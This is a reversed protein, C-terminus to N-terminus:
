EHWAGGTVAGLPPVANSSCSLRRLAGMCERAVQAVTVELVSAPCGGEAEPRCVRAIRANRPGWRVWDTPGFIVVAPTAVANAIHAPGSDNGVFLDAQEIFAALQGVTTRGALDLAASGLARALLRTGEQEKGKGGLLIFGCSRSRCLDLALSIFRALPWNKRDRNSGVHIAVLPRSLAARTVAGIADSRDADALSITAPWTSYDAPEASWCNALSLLRQAEHKVNTGPKACESLMWNGHRGECGWLRRVGCAWALANTRVDSSTVIGVRYRTKRVSRILAALERWSSRRQGNAQTWPANYTYLDDIRSDSAFLGACRSKCILGVRKVDPHRRVADLLPTMLVMDGVNQVNVMLVSEM